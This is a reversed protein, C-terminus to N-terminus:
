RIKILYYGNQQYLSTNETKLWCKPMQIAETEILIQITCVVTTLNECFHGFFDKEQFEIYM